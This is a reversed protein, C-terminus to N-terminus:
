LWKGTYYYIGKRTVRVALDTYRIGTKPDCLLPDLETLPLLVFARENMRPHPVVLEETDIIRKGFLLIDLDLPRPGNPGSSDRDRGASREVDHLKDLLELPGALTFGRFVCNLFKPQNKQYMPETEYVNSRRFDSLITEVQEQATLINRERDGMNSGVGLYVIEATM